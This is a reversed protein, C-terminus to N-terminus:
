RRRLRTISRPTEPPFLRRELRSIRSWWAFLGVGVLGCGLLLLVLIAASHSELREELRQLDSEISRGFSHIERQQADQGRRIEEVVSDHLGRLTAPSDPRASPESAPPRTEGAVAASGALACSLAVAGWVLRSM